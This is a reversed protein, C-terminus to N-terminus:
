ASTNNKSVLGIYYTDQVGEIKNDLRDSVGIGMGLGDSSTTYRTQILEIAGDLPSTGGESRGNVVFLVRSTNKDEVRIASTVPYFNENVRFHTGTTATIADRYDSQYYDSKM